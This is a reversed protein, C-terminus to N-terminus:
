RIILILVYNPSAVEGASLKEYDISKQQSSPCPEKAELLLYAPVTFM